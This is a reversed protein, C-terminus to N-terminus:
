PTNLNYFLTGALSLFIAAPIMQALAGCLVAVVLILFISVMVMTDVSFIMFNANSAQFYACSCSDGDGYAASRGANMMPNCHVLMM